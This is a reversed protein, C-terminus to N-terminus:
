GLRRTWFILVTQLGASGICRYGTQIDTQRRDACYRNQLRTGPCGQPTRQSCRWLAPAPAPPLLLALPLPLLGPRSCPTPATAPPLLRDSCGRPPCFASHSM